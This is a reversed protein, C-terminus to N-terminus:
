RSGAGIDHYLASALDQGPRVGAVQCGLATAVGLTQTNEEDWLLAVVLISVGKQLLLRLQAADSPLLKPTILINHADRRPDSILNNVVKSLPTRSMEVRAFSDLLALQM